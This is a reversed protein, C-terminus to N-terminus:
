FFNIKFISPISWALHYYLVMCPNFITSGDPFAQNKGEIYAFLHLLMTVQSKGKDIGNRDTKFSRVGLRM